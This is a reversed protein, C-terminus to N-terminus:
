ERQVGVYVADKTRHFPHYLISHKIDFKMNDPKITSSFWDENEYFSTWM